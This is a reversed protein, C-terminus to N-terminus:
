IRNTSNLHLAMGCHRGMATVTLGAAKQNQLWAPMVVGLFEEGETEIAIYRSGYMRWSGKYAGTMTGDKHLVVRKAKM